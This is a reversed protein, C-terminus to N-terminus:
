VVSVEITNLNVFLKITRRRNSLYGVNYENITGQVRDHIDHESILLRCKEVLAKLQDELEIDRDGVFINIRSSESTLILRMKKDKWYEIKIDSM